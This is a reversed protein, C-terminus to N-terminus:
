ISTSCLSDSCISLWMPQGCQVQVEGVVLDMCNFRRIRGVPGGPVSSSGGVNVWRQDRGIVIVMLPETREASVQLDGLANAHGTSSRRRNPTLRGLAGPHDLVRQAVGYVSHPHPSKSEAIVCYTPSATRPVVARRWSPM